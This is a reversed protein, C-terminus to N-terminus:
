LWFMSGDLNKHWPGRESSMPTEFAKKVAEFVCKKAYKGASSEPKKLDAKFEEVNYWFRADVKGVSLPESVNLTKKLSDWENDWDAALADADFKIPDGGDDSDDKMGFEDADKADQLEQDEAAKKAKEAAKEEADEQALSKPQRFQFFQGAVVEHDGDLFPKLYKRGREALHDAYYTPAVYSVPM